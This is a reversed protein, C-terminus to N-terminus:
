FPLPGSLPYAADVREDILIHSVQHLHLGVFKVKRSLDM